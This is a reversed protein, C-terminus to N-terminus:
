RRCSDRPKPGAGRMSASVFCFIVLAAFSPRLCARSGAILARYLHISSVQRSFSREISSDPMVPQSTSMFPLGLVAFSIALSVRCISRSRHSRRSRFFDYSMM